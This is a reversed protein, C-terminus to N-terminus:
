CAGAAGGGETLTDNLSLTVPSCDLPCRIVSFNSSVVCAKNAGAIASASLFLSVLTSSDVTKLSAGIDKGM